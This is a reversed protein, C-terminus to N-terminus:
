WASGAQVIGTERIDFRRPPLEGLEPLLDRRVAVLQNAWIKWGPFHRSGTSVDGTQVYVVEYGLMEFVEPPLPYQYFQHVMVDPAVFNPDALVAEPHKVFHIMADAVGVITRPLSSFVAAETVVRDTLGNLDFFQVRRFYKQTLYYPMVGMQHASIHVKKRDGELLQGVIRDIQHLTPINRLHDRNSRDFYSYRSAGYELAYGEVQALGTWLPMGVSRSAAFDLLVFTQACFLGGLALKGARGPGLTTLCAYAVFAAAVPLAHSIMRGGEMWDGGVLVIFSFYAALFVLSLLCYPNVQAGTLEDWTARLAGLIGISFVIAVCSNALLHSTLADVSGRASGFVLYHLGDIAGQWSLGAAKAIVPQPFLSDFYLLRFGFVLLCVGASVGALVGVRALM